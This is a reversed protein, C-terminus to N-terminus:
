WPPQLAGEMQAMKARMGETPKSGSRAISLLVMCLDEARPRANPNISGGELALIWARNATEQDGLQSFASALPCLYDAREIDVMASPDREYAALMELLLQRARVGDGCREFALALDRGIPGSTDPLFDCTARLERARELEAMAEDTRGQELLAESLRILFEIHIEAPFSPLASRVAQEARACRAGDGRARQMAALYGHVGSRVVDLSGTQIARDFADCQRDLDELSVQSAIVAEVRGTLEQPVQGAFRRASETQGLAAFAIAIETLAREQASGEIATSLDIARMVCQEARVRDGANAFAQAILALAETRRWDEIRDAYRLADDLANLQIATMVVDRQLRSKVRAHSKGPPSSAVGM